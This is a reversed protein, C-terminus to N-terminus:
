QILMEQEFDDLNKYIRRGSNEEKIREIMLSDVQHMQDAEFILLGLLDERIIKGEVSLDKINCLAESMKFIDDSMNKITRKREGDLSDLYDM